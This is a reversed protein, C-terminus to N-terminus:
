HVQFYGGVEFFRNVIAVVVRKDLFPRDEAMKIIINSKTTM